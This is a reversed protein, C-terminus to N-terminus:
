VEVIDGPQLSASAGALRTLLKGDSDGARLIRIPNAHLARVTCRGGGDVVSFEIHQRSVTMQDTGLEVRGVTRFSGLDVGREPRIGITRLHM